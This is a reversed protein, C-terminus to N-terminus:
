FLTGWERGMSQVYGRELYVTGQQFSVAADDSQPSQPDLRTFLQKRRSDAHGHRRRYTWGLLIRGGPIKSQIGHINGKQKKIRSTIIMDYNKALLFIKNKASFYTKAIEVEVGGVEQVVNKINHRKDKRDEVILIKM